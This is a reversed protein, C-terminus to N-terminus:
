EVVNVAVKMSGHGKGCFHACKGEFTGVKEPTITIETPGDKKVTESVNLDPIKLGHTVDSTTLVIVVTEGKKVTIQPPDFQFKSAVVNIRRPQDAPTAAMLVGSFLLVAVLGARGLKGKMVKEEISNFITV